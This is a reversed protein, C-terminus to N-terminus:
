KTLEIDRLLRLTLEDLGVRYFYEKGDVFVTEVQVPPVRGLINNMRAEIFVQGPDISVSWKEGQRLDAARTGNIHIQFVHEAGHLGADRIVTLKAPNKSKALSSIYVRETPPAKADALLTPSTGCGSVVFAVAVTMLLKYM